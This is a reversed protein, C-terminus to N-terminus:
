REKSKWDMLVACAAAIDGVPNGDMAVDEVAGTICMELETARDKLNDMSKFQGKLIAAAFDSATALRNDPTGLKWQGVTAKHLTGGGYWNRKDLRRIPSSTQQPVSEIKKSTESVYSEKTRMNVCGSQGAPRNTMVNNDCKYIEDGGMLAASLYFIGVALNM